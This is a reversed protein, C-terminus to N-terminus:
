KNARKNRYKQTKPKPNVAPKNPYQAKYKPMGAVGDTVIQEIVDWGVYVLRDAFHVKLLEVAALADSENVDDNVFYAKLELPRYYKPKRIDEM